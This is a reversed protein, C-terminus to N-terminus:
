ASILDEKGKGPKGHNKGGRQYSQNFKEIRNIKGTRAVDFVSINKNLSVRMKAM